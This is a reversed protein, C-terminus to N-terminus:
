SGIAEGIALTVLAMLLKGRPRAAFNTIAPPAMPTLRIGWTPRGSAIVPATRAPVANM